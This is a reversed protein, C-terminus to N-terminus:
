TSGDEFPALDRAQARLRAAQDPDRAAEAALVADRLQRARESRSPFSRNWAAVLASRSPGEGAELLKQRHELHLYGHSFDYELRSEGDGLKAEVTGVAQALPDLLEGLGDLQAGRRFLDQWVDIAARVQADTAQPALGLAEYLQDVAVCGVFRQARMLHAGPSAQMPEQEELDLDAILEPPPRLEVTTFTTEEAGAELAHVLGQPLGDLTLLAGDPGGPQEAGIRFVHGTFSFFDDELSIEVTVKTGKTCPVPGKVFLRSRALQTRWLVQLGRGRITVRDSALFRVDTPVRRLSQNRDDDLDIFDDLDAALKQPDTAPEKSSVTPEVFTPTEDGVSLLTDGIRVPTRPRLQIAGEVRVGNIFSGNRSGLDEFWVRAGDIWVRGHMRSVLADWVLELDAKPSRRGIVIPADAELAFAFAGATPHELRLKLGM